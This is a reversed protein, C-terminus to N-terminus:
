VSASIIIGRGDESAFMQLDTSLRKLLKLKKKNKKEKEKKESSARPSIYYQTLAGLDTFKIAAAPLVVVVVVGMQRGKM